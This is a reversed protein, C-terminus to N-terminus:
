LVKTFHTFSTVHHCSTPPCLCGRPGARLSFIASLVPEAQGGGEGGVNVWFGGRSQSLTPSPVLWQTREAAPGAPPIGGATPVCLGEPSSWRALGLAEGPGLLAQAAGRRPPPLCKSGTGVEKRRSHGMSVVAAM